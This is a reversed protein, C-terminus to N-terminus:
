KVGVEKFATDVFAGLTEVAKEPTLDGSATKAMMEDMKREINERNPLWNLHGGSIKLPLAHYAQKPDKSIGSMDYFNMDSRINGTINGGYKTLELYKFANGEKTWGQGEPGFAMTLQVEPSYFAKLVEWSAKLHDKGAKQAVTSIGVSGGGNYAVPGFAAAAWNDAGIKGDLDGAIWASDMFFMGSKGALFEGTVNPTAFSNPNIVKDRYMDRFMTVEKLFADNKLYGKGTALGTDAEIDFYNDAGFAYILNGLNWTSDNEIVFGYTDNKGNGDPDKQAMAYAVATFEEMNTPPQLGLKRLWDSRYILALKWGEEKPIMVFKGGTKWLDITEKRVKGNKYDPWDKTVMDTMDVTIGALKCVAPGWHEYIDFGQGTAFSQLMANPFNDGMVAGVKVTYRNGAAKEWVATLAAKGTDDGLIAAPSFGVTIVQKVAPARQCGAVLIAIAALSLLWKGLGKMRM